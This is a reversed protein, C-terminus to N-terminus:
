QLLQLRTMEQRVSKLEPESLPRLPPLVHPACLGRCHVAGKLASLSEGLSRGNQYVASVAKMRDFHLEAEAWDGRRASACLNRCVEPILNGVSPVIGAAGLKLGRAMLAGVGVFIAFGPKGGCRRFLEELRQPDNESDKIGALNPHGVLQAIVDIPISVKTTAPMNYLILPGKLGELLSRYWPLLKDAPFAVPPCAVVVDAGAAFFDNGITVENPHTDGIGAYVKVRGNVRKVAREVLRRRFSLPVSTGEGTTGLVFIGDVGGALLFDVLRDFAEGDVGGGATFPTVVPVVVGQYKLGNKM